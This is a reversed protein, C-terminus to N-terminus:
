VSHTEIYANIKKKDGDFRNILRTLVAVSSAGIVDDSNIDSFLKQYNERTAAYWRDTYQNYTFVWGHVKAM